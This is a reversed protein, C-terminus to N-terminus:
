QIGVVVPGERQGGHCLTVGGGRGPVLGVVVDVHLIDAVREFQVLVDGAHSLLTAHWRHWRDVDVALLHRPQQRVLVPHGRAGTLVQESVLKEVNVVLWHGNDWCWIEKGAM